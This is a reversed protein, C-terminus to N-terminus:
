QEATSLQSVAGPAQNVFGCEMACGWCYLPLLGDAVGCCYCCVAVIFGNCSQKSYDLVASLNNLSCLTVDKTTDPIGYSSAYSM